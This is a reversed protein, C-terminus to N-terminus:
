LKAQAKSLIPNLNEKTAQDITEIDGLLAKIRTKSTNTHVM